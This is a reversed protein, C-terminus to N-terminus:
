TPPRTRPWCRSRAAPVRRLGACTRALTEAVVRYRIRGWPTRQWARWADLHEDFVKPGADNM